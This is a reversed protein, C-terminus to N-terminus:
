VFDSLGASPTPLCPLFTASRTQPWAATFQVQCGYLEEAYEQGAHRPPLHPAARSERRMAPFLSEARPKPWPSAAAGSPPVIMVTNPLIRAMRFRTRLRATPANM